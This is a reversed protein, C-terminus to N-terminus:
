VHDSGFAFPRVQEPTHPSGAASTLLPVLLGVAGADVLRQCHELKGSGINTLVWTAEFQLGCAALSSPTPDAPADLYPFLFAGM